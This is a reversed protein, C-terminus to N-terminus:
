SDPYVTAYNRGTFALSANSDDRVYVRDGTTLPTNPSLEVWNSEEDMNANLDRSLGVEGDVREVRAARPLALAEAKPEHRMWLAAAVGGLVACVLFVLTLHPWVKISNHRANVNM